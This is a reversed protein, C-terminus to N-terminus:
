IKRASYFIVTDKRKMEFVSVSNVCSKVPETLLYLIHHSAQQILLYVTLLIISLRINAYIYKDKTSCIKRLAFIAFGDGSNDGATRSIQRWVCFIGVFFSPM